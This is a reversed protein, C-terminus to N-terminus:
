VVLEIPDPGLWEARAAAITAPDFSRAIHRALHASVRADRSTAPVHHQWDAQWRAFWTMTRLWTLRRLPLLTPRMAAALAPAVATLYRRYATVIAARSLTTAVDPDWGTSTALTLHALDIGPAGYLTKELDVFWAKGAADVLFNGPHTDTGVLCLPTALGPAHRRAWALEEDLPRRTEVALDLTDLFVAQGEIVALTAAGPDAQVQLPPRAAPPPLPVAHLASLAAALSALDAPLHPARGAIEIVVLAGTPVDDSLDIAGALAPTHGSPMARAFAAQQYALYAAPALGWQSFRPLRLLLGRGALRVHDHAIGKTRLLALAGPALDALGPLQRAARHLAALDPQDTVVAAIGGSRFGCQIGPSSGPDMGRSADSQERLRPLLEAFNCPRHRIDLQAALIDDWGDKCAGPSGPLAFFYTGKAVVAAARSQITSTGIKQYSLWRFMEGFGPIDKEGIAALAEPTVDRGTVGTGGTTIVVEIAPDDRWAALRAVIAAHDDTVITRAILSHGAEGIRRALLDGSRDDATTRSDSVTLVAINVPRFATSPDIGPMPAFCATESM